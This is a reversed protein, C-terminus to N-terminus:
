PFRFNVADNQFSYFNAAGLRHYVEINALLLM